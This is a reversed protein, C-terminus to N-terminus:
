LRDHDRAHEFQEVERGIVPHQVYAGARSVVRGQERQQGPLHPRDLPVWFEAGLGLLRERLEAQPVDGADGAVARAPEPGLCREIRNVHGGCGARVHRDRQELLKTGAAPQNRRDAPTSLV